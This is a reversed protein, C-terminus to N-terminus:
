CLLEPRQSVPYVWCPDSLLRHLRGSPDLRLDESVPLASHPLGLRLKRWVPPRFEPRSQLLPVRRRLDLLRNVRYGVARKM